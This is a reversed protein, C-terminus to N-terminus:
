RNFAEALLLCSGSAIRAWPFALANQALPIKQFSQRIFLRGASVGGGGDATDTISTTDFQLKVNWKGFVRKKIGGDERGKWVEMGQM